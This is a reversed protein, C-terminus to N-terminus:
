NLKAYEAKARVLIPIDPDADKWLTFFDQYSKRAAEKDGSMARARGLQLHALPGTVFNAVIGRHDILKQFEAAAEQGQGAKLYAEGRVYAPYLNGLSLAGFSTSGLEYPGAGRLIEIARQPHNKDLEISARITPLLFNQMMTDLPFEQNLKDVLKEAQAPDGARALTLVAMGEVGKGTSLGFAETVAQRARVPNGVEAERLAENARWDAASEATGGQKASLVARQSFDRAKRFRGYYAETDSQISLLCDEIGPKGMAWSLQEQTASNDGQLFGLHYWNARLFLGDLKLARAQNLTARSQDLRDLANSADMLNNYAMGIDPLLRIAERVEVVAREYQGMKLFIYGLNNHVVANGPYSEDWETYTQIAKDLEGTVDRYYAAQIYFRELESVRDRLEYAKKLNQSALSTQGLNYYYTGLAAYAIAFNPDLELARKLYSNPDGVGAYRIRTGQSYAQLAELSSTTAQALPADYKQVSALSEGLKTRLQNGVGELADLVKNRNGATAEASALTDGSQCNEAKVVILYRDGVAAISGMLMAKSNTRLCVERAVEQTLRENAPRNMLKLTSIVKRDSLVNLFPSQELQIALAQKLTDDFVADGTSNAFDGPIITDKATLKQSRRSYLFGGMVVAVVMGTAVLALSLKRRKAKARVASEAERQLKQWKSPLEANGVEDTCLNYIHIHVGHKVETESLDQLVTGWARLQALVDAVAHSVLIHGADGCDMVRQAMNIGGGAINSAANIDAVRYVPGTHIGMRVKIEPHERLARSLQMACRVPFEPDGFFVLAMGDGTPLSVLKETRQASAFAETNRVADQLEGSLSRQQDMPLKSYGVIDMFLVHAIELSPAAALGPESIPLTM